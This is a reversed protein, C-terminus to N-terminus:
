NKQKKQWILYTKIFDLIDGSLVREVDSTQYGTRLDKVLQYPHLVYSRIQTGWTALTNKKFSELKKQQQTQQLQWLKGRLLELAIKRNAHQYRETQCSVVIGTPKHTLRVATSVKNVNQGGHGGSRFFQWELDEEKIQIQDDKLVPLVEVLAFSTHRQKSADFPSIRVLRHTGSEGKLFGFAHNGSVQLSVSKIGAEEGPLYNIVTYDFGQNELFRTYMRYLIHAWDMAETGGSGAHISFIADNSDYEQDFLILFEYRDIIERAKKLDKEELAIEAKLIDELMNQIQSIQKMTQQASEKDEWFSSDMTKKELEKLEKEKEPIDILEKIKELKNKLKGADTDAM